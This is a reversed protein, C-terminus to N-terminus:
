LEIQVDNLIEEMVGIVMDNLRRMNHWKNMDNTYRQAFDIAHLTARYHAVAMHMGDVCYAILFGVVYCKNIDEIIYQSPSHKIAIMEGEDNALRYIRVFNQPNQLIPRELRKKISYVLLERQSYIITM